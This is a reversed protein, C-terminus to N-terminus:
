VLIRRINRKGGHPECSGGMKDAKIREDSGYKTLPLFYLLKENHLKRWEERLEKRKPGFTKKLVRLEFKGLSNIM